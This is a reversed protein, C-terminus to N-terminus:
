PSKKWVWVIEGPKQSYRSDQIQKQIAELTGIISKEAANRALLNPVWTIEFENSYIVLTKEGHSKLNWFGQNFKLNTEQAKWVMILNEPTSTDHEIQSVNWITPSAFSSKYASRFTLTNPNLNKETNPLITSGINRPMFNKYQPYDTIVQWVKWTPENFLTIGFGGLCDQTPPRFLIKGKKLALWDKESLTIESYVKPIHVFAPVKSDAEHIDPTPSSGQALAINQLLLWLVFTALIRRHTKM